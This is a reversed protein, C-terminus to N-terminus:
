FSSTIANQMRCTVMETMTLRHFDLESDQYEDKFPSQPAVMFWIQDIDCKEAINSALIAHGIHVPNFSGGFIGIKM